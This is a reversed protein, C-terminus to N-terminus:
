KFNWAIAENKATMMTVKTGARNLSFSYFLFFLPRGSSQRIDLVCEVYMDTNLTFIVLFTLQSMVIFVSVSTRRRLNPEPSPNGKENSLQVILCVCM